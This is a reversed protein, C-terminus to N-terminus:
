RARAPLYADVFRAKQPCYRTDILCAVAPDKWLSLCSKTDLGCLQAPPLQTTPSPPRNPPGPVQDAQVANAVLGLLLAAIIRYRHTSM